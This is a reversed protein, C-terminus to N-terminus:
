DSVFVLMEYLESASATHSKREIGCGAIQFASGPLDVTDSILCAGKWAEICIRLVVPQTECDETGSPGVDM